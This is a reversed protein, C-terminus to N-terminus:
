RRRFFDWVRRFWNKQPPPKRRRQAEIEEIIQVRLIEQIHQQMVLPTDSGYRAKAFELLDCISGSEKLPMWAEGGNTSEYIAYVACEGDVRALDIGIIKSDDLM